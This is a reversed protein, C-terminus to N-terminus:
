VETSKSRIALLSEISVCAIILIGGLVSRTNPIEHLFLVALIIGFVPQLCSMISATSISFHGFSNLFMTHGIATTILALAILYPLDLIIVSLSPPKFYLLPALIVVAFLVQYFMLVSGNYNEIERKLILNRFSYFVAALLAFILGKTDNEAIDFSPLLYYVGILIISSLLISRWQLRVKFILPELLTTIVPYTFVAIMAIAVSTHKLAHFYSVWHATMLVGSAVVMAMRRDMAIRFSYLKWKCYLGIFVVAFLCRFWISLSPILLLNKGLVGSTSICLM